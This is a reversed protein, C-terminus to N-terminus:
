NQAVTELVTDLLGSSFMMGIGEISLSFCHLTRETYGFWNLKGYWKKGNPTIGKIDGNGVNIYGISSAKEKIQQKMLKKYAKEEEEAIAAPLMEQYKSIMKKEYDIEKEWCSFGREHMMEEHNKTVRKLEKQHRTIEKTIAKVTM